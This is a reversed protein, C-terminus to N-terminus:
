EGVEETDFEVTVSLGSAYRSDALSIRAGHLQVIHQVISLGLGSGNSESDGNNGVRYFRDFVHARESRPIGPGSDEVRLFAGGDREGVTVSIEGAEPTYKSANDLLNQLLTELLSEDGQMSVAEGDLSITQAKRSFAPWAAATVRQALSHLDITKFMGQIIDPNTRNLDLIQEVLHHMREVGANAHALGPHQEPLEEALNHLHVKLVSLPTRLEHAAHAAFHKEREFSASLRALLSNTSDILQILEAPPEHEYIPELDDSRKMNIQRSLNRLPRLGWGVLVWILLASIPLWLLLPTISELAVKEALANRLDMREAVVYWHDSATRRTLIRWRYGAYNADRYGEKLSELAYIPSELSSMILEGDLWAQYIFESDYEALGGNGEGMSGARELIASAHRLQADMLKQTESVSSQYGNLAALFSTLAFAAVLMTVLSARISNM